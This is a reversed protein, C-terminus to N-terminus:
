RLFLQATMFKKLKILDADQINDAALEQIQETQKQREKLKNTQQIKHQSQKKVDDLHQSIYFKQEDLEHKGDKLGASSMKQFESITSHKHQLM